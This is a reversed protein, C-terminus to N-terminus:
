SSSLAHKVDGAHGMEDSIKYLTRKAAGGSPSRLHCAGCGGVRFRLLVIEALSYPGM